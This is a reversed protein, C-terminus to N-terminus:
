YFKWIKVEGLFDDLLRFLKDSRAAILIRDGWRSIIAERGTLRVFLCGFFPVGVKLLVSMSEM